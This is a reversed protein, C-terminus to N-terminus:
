PENVADPRVIARALLSGAAAGCGTIVLAAFPAASGSPPVEFLPVWAGVLLAWLWPRRRGVAAALAAVLFLAVVTMGTADFGPRSDVYAIGIGFTVSIALAAAVSARRSAPARRRTEIM